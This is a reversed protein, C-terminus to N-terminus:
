ARAWIPPRSSMANVVAYQDVDDIPCLQWFWQPLLQTLQCTDIGSVTMFATLKDNLSANNILEVQDPRTQPWSAFDNWATAVDNWEHQELMACTSLQQFWTTH